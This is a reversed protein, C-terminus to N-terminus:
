VGAISYDLMLMFSLLEIHFNITTNITVTLFLLAGALPPKFAHRRRERHSSPPGARKNHTSFRLLTRSNRTTMEKRGGRM